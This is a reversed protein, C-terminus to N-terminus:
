LLFQVLFHLLTLSITNTPGYAVEQALLKSVTLKLGHM